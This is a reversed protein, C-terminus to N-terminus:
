VGSGADVDVEDVVEADWPSEADILDDPVSPLEVDAVGVDGEAVGRFGKELGQGFCVALHGHEGGNDDDAVHVSGGGRGVSPPLGCGLVLCDAVGDFHEAEHVQLGVEFALWGVEGLLCLGGGGADVYAIAVGGSDDPGLGLVPGEQQSGCAMAGQMDARRDGVKGGAGWLINVLTKLGGQPHGWQVVFLGPGLIVPGYVAGPADLRLGGVQECGHACGSNSATELLVGVSLVVSRGRGQPVHEMVEPMHLLLQCDEEVGVGGRGAAVDVVAPRLYGADPCVQLLPVDVPLLVDGFLVFLIRLMFEGVLGDTVEVVGHGVGALAGDRCGPLLVAREGVVCGGHELGGLVAEELLVRGGLVCQVRVGLAFDAASRPDEVVSLSPLQFLAGEGDVFDPPGDVTEPLVFSGAVVAERCLCVVVEGGM